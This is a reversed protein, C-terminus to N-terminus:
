AIDVINTFILKLIDYMSELKRLLLYEQKNHESFDNNEYSIFKNQPKEFILFGFDFLVCSLTEKIRHKSNLHM